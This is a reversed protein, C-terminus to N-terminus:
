RTFNLKFFRRKGVQVLCGSDLQDLLIDKEIVKDNVRVARQAILRLVEQRSNVMGVDRVAMSLTSLGVQHQYDYFPIDMPKQKRQFQETFALEAQQAVKTSHLQTVISGALKLKYAKPNQGNEIELKWAQIESADVGELIQYYRWMLEDSISMVQGFVENPSEDIGIANGLSKSMKKIGDKGELLPLTMVVQPEFGLQKQMTRGMLLNFTQDTGGIEIDAKIHVSDYGQLLPYLFEHIAIPTQDAYRKSFDDRELMQAVTHHQALEILDRASLRDLWQSNYSVTTKAPDLFKSMQQSYTQANQEIAAADLMPRTLSKGSPDGIKATFDGIIFVIQHGQQQFSQLQKLLVMHGLHLHASTPDFGAKIILPRDLALKSKLGDNPIWQADVSM